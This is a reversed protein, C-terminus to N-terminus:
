HRRRLGLELLQEGQGLAGRARRARHQEVAEAGGLALHLGLARGGIRDGLGVHGRLPRQAVEDPTVPRAVGHQALLLALLIPALGPQAPDDIRQVPGHVEQEPDGLPAHAHGALVRVSGQHPGDM